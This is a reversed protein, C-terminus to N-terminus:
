GHGHKRYRARLSFAKLVNPGYRWISEVQWFPSYRYFLAVGGQCHSRAETAFVQYGSSYRTHIGNTLKAETLIGLDVNMELWGTRSSQINYMAM